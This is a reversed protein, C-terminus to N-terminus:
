PPIQIEVQSSKCLPYRTLRFYDGVRVLYPRHYPIIPIHGAFVLFPHQGPIM